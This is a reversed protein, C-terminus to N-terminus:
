VIKEGISWKGDIKDSTNMYDEVVIYTTLGLNTSFGIKTDLSLEDGGRHTLIIQNGNVQCFIDTSPTSGTPLLTYVSLTVVSFLTIVISLLLITGLVESVATDSKIQNTLGM